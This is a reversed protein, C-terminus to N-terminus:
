SLAFTDARAADWYRQLRDPARGELLSGTAEYDYIEAFSHIETPSTREYILRPHLDCPHVHGAAAVVEALAHMTNRHFNHVRVSKDTVVVARALKPDQTAVGVPCANTHCAQAQICGLALM